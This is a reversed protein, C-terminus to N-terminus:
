AEAADVRVVNSNVGLSINLKMVSNAQDFTESQSMVKAIFLRQSPTGGAPADNLVLKFAYDHIAKEAAIVAIQGADAYDVGCVVEMTGASRSGKLTRTRQDAIGTFSVAESTDGVSGLSETEKIEVWTQSTFDSAIFDTSKQALVGGIYLKAGNTAYLAM